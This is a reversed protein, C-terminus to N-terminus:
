EFKWLIYLFFEYMWLFGIEIIYFMGISVFICKSLIFIWVWENMLIKKNILCKLRECWDSLILIFYMKNNCCKKIFIKIFDRYYNRFIISCYILGM